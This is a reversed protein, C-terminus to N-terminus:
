LGLVMEQHAIGADMFEPGQAVFGLAAYFGIAHTQAGLRAQTAGPLTRAVEVAARILAAGYGRGRATALVCVRGIKVYGDGILLRASGMPVGDEALLLHVADDDRDDVEDAESVGQEEIFVTRRLARCAAIDRTQTITVSM